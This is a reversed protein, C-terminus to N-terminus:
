SNTDVIFPDNTNYPDNVIGQTCLAIPEANMNRGALGVGEEIGGKRDATIRTM